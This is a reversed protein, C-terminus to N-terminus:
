RKYRSARSKIRAKLLLFHLTAQALKKSFMYHEKEQAQKTLSKAVGLKTLSKVCSMLCDLNHIAVVLSNLQVRRFSSLDCNLLLQVKEKMLHTHKIIGSAPGTHLVIFGGYMTIQVQLFKYSTLKLINPYVAM